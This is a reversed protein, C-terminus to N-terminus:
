DKDPKVDDPKVDYTKPASKKMPVQEDPKLGPLGGLPFGGPLGGPFGKPLGGPFMGSMGGGPFGGGFRKGLAGSMARKALSAGIANGFRGLLRQLPPLQFLLGIVGTVFGPIIVLIAGILGILRPGVQGTIFDQPLRRANSQMLKVGIISLVIMALIPGFIDKTWEMVLLLVYFEVCLLAIVLLIGLCGFRRM